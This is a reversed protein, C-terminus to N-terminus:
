ATPVRPTRPSPTSPRATPGGSWATRPSRAPRCPSTTRPSPTRAPTSTSGPPAPSPSRADTDVAVSGPASGSGGTFYGAPDAAALDTSRYARLALQQPAALLVRIGDGTVALGSATGGHVLTDARVSATGSAVGFTAVHSLNGQPEEAALVDGGTALLPATTWQSLAPQPIAAPAPASPDVSGIGGKGGATYGYWVRGGAVAVSVPSSGAGTSWRATETLTATDIAAIAGGDALAAYLTGGDPSLALGTAGQEGAVTTIPTGSLDTVVIGASGAGQSVFVHQHAPDVVLHAYGSLPLAATDDAYVASGAPGVTATTLGAALSLTAVLSVQRLRM